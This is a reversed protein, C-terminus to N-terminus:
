QFDISKSPFCIKCNYFLLALLFFYTNTYVFMSDTLIIAIEPQFYHMNSLSITIQQGNLSRGLWKMQKKRPRGTPIRNPTMELGVWGGM